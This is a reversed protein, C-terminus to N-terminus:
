NWQSLKSRTRIQTSATRIFNEWGSSRSSTFPVRNKKATKEFAKYINKIEDKYGERGPVKTISVKFRAEFHMVTLTNLKPSISEVPNKSNDKNVLDNTGGLIAIARVGKENFHYFVDKNAMREPTAGPCSCVITDKTFVGHVISDGLVPRSYCRQKETTALTRFPQGKM